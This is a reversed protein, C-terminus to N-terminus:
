IGCMCVRSEVEARTSAMAIAIHGETGYMAVVACACAFGAGRRTVASEEGWDGRPAVFPAVGRGSLPAYRVEPVDAAARASAPRGAGTHGTGPGAGNGPLTSGALRM